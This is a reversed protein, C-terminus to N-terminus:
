QVMPQRHKLDYNGDYKTNGESLTCVDYYANLPNMTCFNNTPTDTSQDTAALNTATYDNTNGSEDDDLDGSDEFDLYAGDSGFTLGSVDKPKWITPSDEDYEGFSSPTLQQGDIFVVEAAYGNCYNQSGQTFINLDSGFSSKMMPFVTIGMVLSKNM